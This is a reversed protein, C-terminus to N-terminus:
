LIAINGDFFQLIKYWIQQKRQKNKQKKTAKNNELTTTKRYM